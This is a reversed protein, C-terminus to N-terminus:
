TRWHECVVNLLSIFHPVIGIRSAHLFGARRLRDEVRHDTANLTFAHYGVRIRTVHRGNQEVM